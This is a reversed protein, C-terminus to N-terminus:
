GNKIQKGEKRGIGKDFVTRENLQRTLRTFGRQSPGREASFLNTKCKYYAGMQYMLPIEDCSRPKRKGTQRGPFNTGLTVLFKSAYMLCLMNLYDPVIAVTNTEQLLISMSPWPTLNM